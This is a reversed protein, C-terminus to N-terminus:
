LSALPPPMGPVPGRQAADAIGSGPKPPALLLEQQQRRAQEQQEVMQDKEAEMIAPVVLVILSTSVVWLAKGGFSLGGRVAWNGWSFSTDLVNQVREPFMEKLGAVRELLSEPLPELAAPPASDDIPMQVIPAAAM